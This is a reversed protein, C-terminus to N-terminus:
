GAADAELHLHLRVDPYIKLLPMRPIDMGFYRIDLVQEGSVIMRRDLTTDGRLPMRQTEIFTATVSGDIARSSGHLTLEGAVKYCNGDGLRSVARLELTASPYRRVDIKRLVEADYLSNGSTLSDLAIELRARPPPELLVLGQDVAVEAWGRIDTASFAIPGVNSRAEIVLNSRDAAVELRIPGPAEGPNPRSRARGGSAPRRREATSPAGRTGTRAGALSRRSANCYWFRELVLDLSAKERAVVSMWAELVQEGKDTLAYVHRTSGVRSPEDWTRVLGDHQLDALARYVKPPDVPGLGLKNMPEVLRYGHRPEEALLLLVAPYLFRRPPSVTFRCKTEPLEDPPGLWPDLPGRAVETGSKDM